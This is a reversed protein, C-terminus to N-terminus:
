RRILELEDATFTIDFDEGELAVKIWVYLSVRDCVEVVKGIMFAYCSNQNSVRVWDHKQLAYM